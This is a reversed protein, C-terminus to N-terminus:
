PEDLAKAMRKAQELLAPNKFSRQVTAYIEGAVEQQGNKEAIQATRLMLFGTLEHDPFQEIMLDSIALCAKPDNLLFAAEGQLFYSDVVRESLPYEETLRAFEKAAEKFKKDAFFKKGREFLVGSLDIERDAASRLVSALNRTAYDEKAMQRAADKPLIQAVEQSFDRLRTEALTRRFKEERLERAYQESIAKDESNESFYVIFQSYFFLLGATISLCTVLFFGNRSKM